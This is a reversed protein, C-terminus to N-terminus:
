RAIGGLALWEESESKQLPHHVSQVVTTVAIHDQLDPTAAGDARISVRYNNQNGRAIEDSTPPSINRVSCEAKKRTHLPGLDGARSRRVWSRVGSPGAGNDTGYM